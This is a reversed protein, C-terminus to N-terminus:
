TSYVFVWPRTECLCGVWATAGRTERGMRPECSCGVQTVQKFGFFARNSCRSFVDVWDVQCFVVSQWGFQSWVADWPKWVWSGDVLCHAISSKSPCNSSYSQAHLIGPQFFQHFFDCRYSSFVFRCSPSRGIVLPTICGQLCAHFMITSTQFIMKRGLHTIQLNWGNIKWPTVLNLTNWLFQWRGFCWKPYGQTLRDHHLHCKKMKGNTGAWTWTNKQSFVLCIPSQKAHKGKM